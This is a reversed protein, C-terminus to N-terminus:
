AASLDDVAAKLAADLADMDLLDEHAAAPRRRPKRRVVPPNPPQVLVQKRADALAANAVIVQATLSFLLAERLATGPSELRSTWAWVEGRARATASRPAPDVAANVGVLEGAGVETLLIARRASTMRLIEVQGRALLWAERDRDGEMFACEGPGLRRRTWPGACSLGTMGPMGQLLETAAPLDSPPRCAHALLRQYGSRADRIPRELEGEARKALELDTERVRRAAGSLSATLLANYIPGDLRRMLRLASIGIRLVRSDRAARVTATRRAFDHFASLEGLLQGPHITGVEWGDVRAELEGDLLIALGDSLEDERWLVHGRCLAEVKWLSSAARLEDLPVSAMCPIHTLTEM